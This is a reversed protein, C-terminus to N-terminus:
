VAAQRCPLSCVAICTILALAGVSICFRPFPAGRRREHQAGLGRVAGRLRRRPITGLGQLTCLTQTFRRTHEVASPGLPGEYFLVSAGACFIFHQCAVGFSMCICGSAVNRSHLSGHEVYIPSIGAHTLAACISRGHTKSHIKICLLGSACKRSCCPLRNLQTVSVEPSSSADLSVRIRQGPAASEQTSASAQSFGSLVEAYGQLPNCFSETIGQLDILVVELSLEILHTATLSHSALAM